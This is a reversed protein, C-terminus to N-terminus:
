SQVAKKSKCWSIEADNGVFVKAAETDGQLLLM